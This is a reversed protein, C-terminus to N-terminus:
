SMGCCGLECCGFLGSLGSLALMEFNGLGLAWYGPIGVDACGFM